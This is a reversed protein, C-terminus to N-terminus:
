EKKGPLSPTMLLARLAEGVPVPPKGCLIRAKDRLFLEGAYFRSILGADLRYFRQMVQWRKEPRGALFLMRNLLRFFHQERWQRRAFREIRQSLKEADCPLAAAIEDALTVASPLSYGTTAHFLGARLGSCPQGQQQQWFREIDGDLTIPLSGQEERLLRSLQWGQQEAYHLINQRAQESDLTAHNIYHTDEILLREASLPLTYVFRYGSHQDVTADMLVPQQLGHPRALHWEQGVFSQYGLRLHPTPQLGRGDIVARAHLVDGNELTVSQPTVSRVPAATRLRDGLTERLHRAFDQSAVSCYEGRLNRRLAPFRVQYGPWRASLLPELWAFQADSVDDRHFSWTHNGAPQAAGELLLIDPAPQLQRLRLAILGNALGAGVLILDAHTESM